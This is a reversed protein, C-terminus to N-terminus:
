PKGKKKAKAVSSTYHLGVAHWINYFKRAHYTLTQSADWEWNAPFLFREHVICTVGGCNVKHFLAWTPDKTGNPLRCIYLGLSGSDIYKFKFDISLWSRNLDSDYGHGVIVKKSIENNEDINDSHLQVLDGMELGYIFLDKEAKNL